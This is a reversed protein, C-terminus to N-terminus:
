EDLESVVMLATPEVRELMFQAIRDGGKIQYSVNKSNVLAVVVEGRYNSDVVSVSNALTIGHKALGSRAYIKVCFEKPIQMAWGTPVFVTAGASIWASEPAYIDWCAADYSGKSAVSATPRLQKLKITNM